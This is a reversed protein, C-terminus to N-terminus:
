KLLREAASLIVQEVEPKLKQEAYLKYAFDVEYGGDPFASKTPVYGVNGNAYGAVMVNPNMKKFNLAYEVFVEGPLSMIHAGDLSFRQVEFPVSVQDRGGRTIIQRAWDHFAQTIHVDGLQLKDKNKLKEETESLIREAEEISMPPGLPLRVTEAAISIEADDTTSIGPLTSLVAQAVNRGNSEVVDFGGRPGPNINGCCGQLFMAQGGTEEEIIRQAPGPWDASVERNDGGMTVAHCAYNFVTAIPKGDEGVFRWIGVEPDVVGGANVGIRVEGSPTRYRRNIALDSEAKGFGFKAPRMDKTAAEITDAVKALMEEVYARNPYGCARIPETAPGAHTHSCGILINVGSIGTRASADHRIRAVQAGSLGILDLSVIAAKIKGDSLVLAKAHLDDHVGTNGPIRGSYGCLDAGIPPNIETRATGASLKGMLTGKQHTIRSEYGSRKKRNRM